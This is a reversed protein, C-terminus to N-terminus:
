GFDPFRSESPRLLISPTFGRAMCLVCQEIGLLGMRLCCPVNARAGVLKGNRDFRTRCTNFGVFGRFHRELDDDKLEGPLEPLFLCESPQSRSMQRPHPHPEASPWTGAAPLPAAGRTLLSDPRVLHLIHHLIIRFCRRMMQEM